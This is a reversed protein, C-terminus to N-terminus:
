RGEDRAPSESESDGDGNSETENPRPKEPQPGDAGPVEPREANSPAAEPQAAESQAAESQAAEPQPVEAPSEQPEAAAEPEPDFSTLVPPPPEGADQSDGATDTSGALGAAAVPEGWGDVPTAAPQRPTTQPPASESDRLVNPRRPKDPTEAGMEELTMETQISRKLDSTSRRFEGLAKGLTRGIEPLRKPGFLMLALVLIVLIEPFGLSGFM